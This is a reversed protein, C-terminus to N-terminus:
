MGEYCQKNIQKKGEIWFGFLLDILRAKRTKKREKKRKKHTKYKRLKENKM